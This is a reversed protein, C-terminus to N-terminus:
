EKSQWQAVFEDVTEDDGAMSEFPGIDNTIEILENLGIDILGTSPKAQVGGNRTAGAGHELANANSQRRHDLDGSLRRGIRLCSFIV